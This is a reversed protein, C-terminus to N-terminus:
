RRPTLAAQLDDASVPKELMVDIAYRACEVRDFRNTGSWLVIWIHPAIRCVAVTLETGLMGPMDYDTLLVDWGKPDLSIEALATSADPLFKAAFGL